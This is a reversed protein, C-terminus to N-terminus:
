PITGSVGTRVARGDEKGFRRVTIASIIAFRWFCHLPMSVLRLPVKNVYVAEADGINNIIAQTQYPTRDYVTLEGLQKLGDWSLDGPNETYGDLVVIKM